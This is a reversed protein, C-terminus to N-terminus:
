KRTIPIERPTKEPAKPTHITLVGTTYEAKVDETQAEYPLFFRREFENELREHLRFAPKEETREEKRKGTITLTHDSVHIGVEKEDFGPVELELVFEGETEYFDAAPVTPVFGFDEFLKRFRHDITDLERFPTWRTLTTM